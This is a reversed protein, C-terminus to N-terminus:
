TSPSKWHILLATMISSLWALGTCIWMVVQFVEVFSLKIATSVEQVMGPPVQKPVTAGGLSGAEMHLATQAAASLQLQSTRNELANSFILLATAGVVAITLVGATRSVANNIGSAKGAHNIEVSGMVATTLPTVTLGMGTGLLVIGPFFSQWYDGPGHTLGTMGMVFFGLGVLAPGLILLGRVGHRDTFRGAWRSLVTLLLAFPTFATGAIAMNYGQAQVLNLSLFFTGASLAGYLFFTLLNAGSFTRSHFLGLPMMPNKERQEHFIFVILSALGIVFSVIVQLDRFGLDPASIFSYTLGALGVTVLGAGAFDVKAPGQEDRSEPVKSHLIVLAAIGLPLNILFVARWLGANSLIGGLIPGGITVITTAASWTGIAQGRRDESFFTTIIALSGPIMFAGGIGEVVRAAILFRITPALGCALSALMFLAIGAMFVKKRGVIDGLAGGPLILAALMVLYANVVWLLQAGSAHFDTQIAPLAVNLASGDIFAMSSALITSFLVWRSLDPTKIM